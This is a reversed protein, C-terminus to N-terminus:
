AIGLILPTQRMYRLGRRIAGPRAVQAETLAAREARFTGKPARLKSIAWALVPVLVLQHRLGM